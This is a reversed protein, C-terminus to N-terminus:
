KSLPPMVTLMEGVSWVVAEFCIQSGAGGCWGGDRAILLIPRSDWEIIRWSEAQFSWSRDDIIAHLMCGGTGCYASAMSSCSFGSEDVVLDLEGDGNLDVSQVADGADFTGNEFSACFGRAKDLINDVPGALVPSSYAIFCLGVVTRLAEFKPVRIRVFSEIHKAWGNQSVCHLACVELM